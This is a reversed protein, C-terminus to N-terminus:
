NLKFKGTYFESCGCTFSDSVSDFKCFGHYTCNVICGSLDYKSNLLQKQESISLQSFYFEIGTKAISMPTSNFFTDNRLLELARVPHDFNVENVKTM